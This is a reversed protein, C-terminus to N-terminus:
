KKKLSTGQMANAPATLGREVVLKKAEEIPIHVIGTQQDIWGYSNLQANEKARFERIDEPPFNQHGPIGQLRPEPPLREGRFLPPQTEEETTIWKLIDFLGWMLLCVVVISAALAVGFKIIGKTNEDYREHNHQKTNDM